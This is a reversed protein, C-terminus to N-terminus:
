QLYQAMDNGNNSIDRITKPDPMVDAPLLRQEGAEFRQKIAYQGAANIRRVMEGGILGVQYTTMNKYGGTADILHALGLDTAVEIKFMDMAAEAGHVLVKHRGGRRPM